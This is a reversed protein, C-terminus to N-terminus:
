YSMVKRKRRFIFHDQLPFVNVELGRIPNTKKSSESLLLCSFVDPPGPYSTSLGANFAFKDTELV